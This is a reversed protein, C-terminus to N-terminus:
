GYYGALDAIVPTIGAVNFIGTVRDTPLRSIVLNPMISGAAANVNSALPRTTNAPDPYVTLYTSATPKIATLNFVIAQASAPVTTIGDATTLTQNLYTGYTGGAAIASTSGLLSNLGVRTDLVRMPALPYYSLHGADSTYFGAVDLITRTTGNRNYLSIQGGSGIPVTVLNARTTGPTMNLSSVTPVPLPGSDPTPVAALWTNTTPGAATLNAVVAVANAPAGPISAVDVPADAGAAISADFARYPASLPVYGAHATDPTFYGSLDVIVGVSGTSNRITL